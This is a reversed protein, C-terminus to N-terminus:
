RVVRFDWALAGYGSWEQGLDRFKAIEEATWQTRLPVNETYAGKTSRGFIIVAYEGSPLATNPRVVFTTGEKREIGIEIVSQQVSLENRDPSDDGSRARKNPKLLVSRTTLVRVQDKGTVDLRLLVPRIDSIPVEVPLFPDVPVVIEVDQGLVSVSSREGRLFEFEFGKLDKPGGIHLLTLATGAAAAAAGFYGAGAIGSTVISSGAKVTMATGVEGLVAAKAIESAESSESAVFARQIPRPQLATRNSGPGRVYVAAAGSTFSLLKALDPDDSERALEFRGERNLSPGASIRVEGALSQRTQTRTRFEARIGSAFTMSILPGSPSQNLEARGSQPAEVGKRFAVAGAYGGFPDQSFVVRVETTDNGIVMRGAWVGVVPIATQASVPPPWAGLICALLSLRIGWPTRAGIIDITRGGM